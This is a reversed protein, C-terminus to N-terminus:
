LRSPCLRQHWLAPELPDTLDGTRPHAYVASVEVARNQRDITGVRM